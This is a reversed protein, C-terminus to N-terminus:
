LATELRAGANPGPTQQFVLRPKFSVCVLDELCLWCAIQRAQVGLAMLAQTMRECYAQAREVDSATAQRMEVVDGKMQFTRYDHPRCFTFAMPAGSAMAAVAQPWQSRSVTMEVLGEERRRAGLARALVPRGAEAVAAAVMMLPGDLFTSLTDEVMFEGAHRLSRPYCVRLFVGGPKPVM